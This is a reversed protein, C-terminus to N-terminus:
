STLVALEATDGIMQCAPEKGHSACVKTPPETLLIDKGPSPLFRAVTASTPESAGGPEVDARNWPAEGAGRAKRMPESASHEASSSSKDAM